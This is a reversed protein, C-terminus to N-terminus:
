FGSLIFQVIFYFVVFLAGTIGTFLGFFRGKAVPLDGVFKGTQGNMAYLYNKGDWAV